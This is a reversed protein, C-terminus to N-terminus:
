TSILVTSPCLPEGSEGHGLRHDRFGDGADRRQGDADYGFWSAYFGDGWGSHFMIANAEGLPLDLLFSYPGIM